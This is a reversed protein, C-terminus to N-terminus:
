GGVVDRMGLIDREQMVRMICGDREGHPMLHSHLESRKVVRLLVLDVGRRYERSRESRTEREREGAFCSGKRGEWVVYLRRVEKCAVDRTFPCSVFCPFLMPFIPPSSQMVCCMGRERRELYEAAELLAAISLSMGQSPHRHHCSLSQSTQQIDHTSFFFVRRGFRRRSEKRSPKRLHHGTTQGTDESVTSPTLSPSPLPLLLTKTPEVRRKLLLCSSLSIRTFTCSVCGEKLRKTPESNFCFSLCRFLSPFSLSGKEHSSSDLSQAIKVWCGTKGSPVKTVPISELRQIRSSEVRRERGKQVIVAFYENSVVPLVITKRAVGERQEFGNRM